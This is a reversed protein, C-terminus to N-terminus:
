EAKGDPKDVTASFAEITRGAMTLADFRLDGALSALRGARVKADTMNVAGTVHEMPVGVDLSADYLHISGIVDVDPEGDAGAAPRYALRNLALGIRGHLKLADVVQRM